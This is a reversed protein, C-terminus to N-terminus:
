SGALGSGLETSVLAPLNAGHLMANSSPLESAINQPLPTQAQSTLQILPQVVM